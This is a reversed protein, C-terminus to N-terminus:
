AAEKNAVFVVLGRGDQQIVQARVAMGIRVADPAVGDVRSMLRVGEQLDILAVNYDGGAEPKRRVVTTSYVTGRGDPSAFALKDAGCHPCIMRPYFVARDCGGCRQILFRGEDLAQRYQAEVGQSVGDTQDPATM